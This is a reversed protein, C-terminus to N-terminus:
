SKKVHPFTNRRKVDRTSVISLSHSFYRLNRSVQTDFDGKPITTRTLYLPLNHLCNLLSSLIRKTDKIPFLIDLLNCDVDKCIRM